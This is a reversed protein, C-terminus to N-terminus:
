AYVVQCVHAANVRKVVHGSHSRCEFWVTYAMEGSEHYPTISAVDDHLVSAITNGVADFLGSPNGGGILQDDSM